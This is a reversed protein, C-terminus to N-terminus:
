RAGWPQLEVAEDESAAPRVVVPMIAIAMPVVITRDVIGPLTIGAVVFLWPLYSLRRLPHNSLLPRIQLYFIVLYALLGFVGVAVAAELFVNHYDGVTQDLGSGFYPSDLFRHWGDKLATQRLSDSYAATNDGALRSLSGGHGGVQLLYPMVALGLAAGVLGLFTWLGSREILPVLVVVAALGLTAGRSGSLIVSVLSAAGIGLLIVKTRQSRADPLLYLVIAIAVAGALGFDNPHHALGNYRGTAAPAGKVMGVALSVMHGALYCWLLGDFIARSPYWMALAIPLVGILLLWQVVFVISTVPAVNITSGLLGTVALVGLALVFSGPVRSRRAILEPVLLLLGLLLLLDTPTAVNALGGIGRYMPATGFSAGLAAIAMRQRGLVALAFVLVAVGCAALAAGVGSGSFAVLLLALVGLAATM